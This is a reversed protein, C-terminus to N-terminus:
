ISKENSGTHNYLGQAMLQLALTNRVGSTKKIKARKNQYWIKIQSENLGLEDALIQRREGTLYKSREFEDKLRALQDSTFATRPRKSDFTDCSKPKRARPGALVITDNTKTQQDLSSMQQFARATRVQRRDIRIDRVISGRQFCRHEAIEIPLHFLSTPQRHRYLFTANRYPINKM